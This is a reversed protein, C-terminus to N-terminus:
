GMGLFCVLDTANKGALPDTRAVKVSRGEPLM